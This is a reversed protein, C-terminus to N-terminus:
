SDGLKKEKLLCVGMKLYVFEKIFLEQPKVLNIVNWLVLISMFRVGDGLQARIAQGSEFIPKIFHYTPSLVLQRFSTTGFVPLFQM